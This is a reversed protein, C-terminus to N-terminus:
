LRMQATAVFGANEAQKTATVADRLAEGVLVIAPSAIRETHVVQVLEGLTCAYRREHASSAHCVIACPMTRAAGARQLERAIDEVRQVGMYIALTLKAEIMARWNVPDDERASHGTIFAVGHGADRDTLPHKLAAAAASAATIGPIIEYDIGAANLAAIEEAARGFVSPDGGKLRVVRLGRKAEAVLLKCIFAQPTSACGGRKGVYVIRADARAYTLVADGVLDDVLLVDAAAITKAAKITLLNADGPGAGVLSVRVAASM